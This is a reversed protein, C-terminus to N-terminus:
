LNKSINCINRFRRQLLLVLKRMRIFHHTGKESCEREYCFLVHLDDQLIGFLIVLMICYTDVSCFFPVRAYM